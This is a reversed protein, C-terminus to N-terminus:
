QVTKSQLTGIIEVEDLSEVLRVSTGKLLELREAHALSGHRNVLVARAGLNHALEADVFQDGIVLTTDPALSLGEVVALSPKRHQSDDGCIVDDIYPQLSSHAVIHRPSARMRGEHARSTVIVQKVAHTAARRVLSLADPMLHHEVVAYHSDQESLFEAVIKGVLPDSSMLGAAGAISEELTGHYHQQLTDLTPIGFEHRPFIEAVLENFIGFSDLLTGDLDWIITEINDVTTM